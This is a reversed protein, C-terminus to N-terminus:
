MVGFVHESLTASKHCMCRKRRGFVDVVVSVGRKDHQSTGPINTDGTRCARASKDVRAARLINWSKEREESDVPSTGTFSRVKQRTTQQKGRRDHDCFFFFFTKRKPSRVCVSCYRRDAEIVLRVAFFWVIEGYADIVDWWQVVGGGDGVSLETSYVRKTNQIWGVWAALHKSQTYVSRSYAIIM